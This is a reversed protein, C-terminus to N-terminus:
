FVNSDVLVNVAKLNLNMCSEFEYLINVYYYEGYFILPYRSCNGAPVM